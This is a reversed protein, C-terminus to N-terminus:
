SATSSPLSREAPRRARASADIAPAFASGSWRRTAALMWRAGRAVAASADPETCLALAMQRGAGGAARDAAGDLHEALDSRGLRRAAGALERDARAALSETVALAGALAPGQGRGLALLWLLNARALSVGAIGDLSGADKEADDLTAGYRILDTAAARPARPLLWSWTDAATARILARQHLLDHLQSASGSRAVMAAPTHVRDSSRAAAIAAVPDVGVVPDSHLRLAGEFRTALGSRFEILTPNWEWDASVGDFGRGHMAFACLLALHFDDGRLANDVPALLGPLKHPSRRLHEVVFNSLPGRAAPLRM